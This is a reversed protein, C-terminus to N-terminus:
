SIFLPPARNTNSLTVLEYKVKREFIRLFSIDTKFSFLSHSEFGALQHNDNFIATQNLSFLSQEEPNSGKSSLNSSTFVKLAIVTGMCPTNAFEVKVSEDHTVSFLIFFITMVPILLYKPHSFKLDADM